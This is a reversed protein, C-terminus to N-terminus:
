RFPQVLMKDLRLDDAARFKELGIHMDKHGEIPQARYTGFLRDWVPINFGYNSNTEVTITSHHVRHMDPTVLIYRLLRDIRTPLNINGHNFMACANLLTEFLITAEPPIGLAAVAAFKIGMSLLIEFPHFRLATTVDFETDAHHVRHLRWLVPVKHFLVHQWYIILDLLVLSLLVTLWFPLHLAPFIGWGNRATILAFGALSVPFVLRVVLVDLAVLALNHPWRKSRQISQTRRPWFYEAAAMIVFVCLFVSLRVTHEM